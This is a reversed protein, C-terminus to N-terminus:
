VVVEGTKTKKTMKRKKKEVVPLGKAATKTVFADTPREVVVKEEAREEREEIWVPPLFDNSSLTRNYFVRLTPFIPMPDARVDLRSRIGDDMSDIFGEGHEEVDTISIPIRPAEPKTSKRPGSKAKTVIKVEKTKLNLRLVKGAPQTSPKRYGFERGSLSRGEAYAEDIRETLTPGGGAINSYGRTAPIGSREDGLGPFVIANREREEEEELLRIRTSETEILTERQTELIGIHTATV